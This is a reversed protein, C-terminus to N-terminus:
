RWYLISKDLYKLSHPAIGADRFIIVVLWTVIDYSITLGPKEQFYGRLLRRMQVM